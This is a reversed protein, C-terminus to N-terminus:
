ITCGSILNTGATEKYGSITYSVNASDYTYKYYTNGTTTTSGVMLPSTKLYTSVSSAGGSTTLWSDGTSTAPYTSNDAYYQEVAAAINEATARCSKKIALNRTGVINVTVISGLIGLIILVVLLEILTFGHDRNKHIDKRLTKFM